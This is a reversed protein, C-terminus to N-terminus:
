GSVAHVSVFMMDGSQVTRAKPEPRSMDPSFAKDRSQDIVTQLMEAFVECLHTRCLSRIICWLTKLLENRYHEGGSNTNRRVQCVTTIGVM